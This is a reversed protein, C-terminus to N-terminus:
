DLLPPWFHPVVVIVVVGVESFWEIISTRRSELNYPQVHSDIVNVVLNIIMPVSNYFLVSRRSRCLLRRVRLM